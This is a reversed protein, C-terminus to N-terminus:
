APSAGTSERAVIGFGVDIVREGVADGACRALILGAARSGMGAGDIRVTTLSPLLDAAFDADGFGCVALDQPVRIGRARAEVLIGSALSDSSCFVADIRRDQDLLEALARRGLGLSSPAHVVSTPVERGFASAFGDRRQRARSDDGMAVAARRRGLGHFYGAVASGVKLHSFGVVMDVPRDTLDWVEVLPIALRRLREISSGPQLLGIAVIGDVRRSIMTDLLAQERARDFGVQGMILQYGARDFADTLAQLMPLFQPVSVAPVLAGVTMTRRSKLGGALLNPVYGTAAVARQVREITPASVIGPSRLARSATILSVGAVRAVDHLTVSKAPPDSPMPSQATVDRGPGDPPGRGANVVGIVLNDDKPM